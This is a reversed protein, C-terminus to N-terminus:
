HTGCYVGANEERIVDVEAQAQAEELAERSELIQMLLEPDELQDTESVNLGHKQLIYQARLLPSLLTNYAKNVVGSLDRAVNM